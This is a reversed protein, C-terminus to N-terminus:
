FPVDDFEPPGSSHLHQASPTCLHWVAEPIEAAEVLNQGEPEGRCPSDIPHASDAGYPQCVFDGLSSVRAHELCLEFALWM